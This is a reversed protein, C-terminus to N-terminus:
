RSRSSRCGATTPSAATGSRPIRGSSSRSGRRRRQRRPPLVRQRHRHASAPAPQAPAAPAAAAPAAPQPRQRGRDRRQRLRRPRRCSRRPRDATRSRRARPHFRRAARAELVRRRQHVAQGRRRPHTWGSGGGFARTWYDKVIDLQSRGSQGHSRASASRAGLARRLAARHAAAHAHRHRRVRARRGVVRAPARRAHELSLSGGDRRRLSRPLRRAPGERAAGRVEPGSARHLGPEGGLIVLLECRAPTWRRRWTPSRRRRIRGAHKSRRRWLHRDDGVNGLAQNMAHALAHVAAPQYEGAVVLSRARSPGPSGQRGRRDVEAIAPQGAATARLRRRDRRRAAARLGRHRSARVPLRHDAKAGTLSPTSEVAYLRNMTKREDTVRRRDAFDRAYRVSGPGCALFDADLSVIVDAKDFHYVTRRAAWGGPPGRRARRRAVGPRVPALAGASVRRARDGDARCPVAVYGTRQPDCDRARFPRRSRLLRSDVGDRFDAWTRLEGRYTVTQARDPDYLGLVAAQTMADTAGLSAPHDPNGEIKTPRGMHSEVLVPHAIGSFPIASAFFLPRGPVLDEPQRVYPVIAEPPQKTCAGVGALALSASM